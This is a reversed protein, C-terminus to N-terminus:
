GINLEVGVSPVVTGDAARSRIFLIYPGPPLVDTDAPPEAILASGNSATFPIEVTRQDADILHTISTRRVLVVSEVDAADPTTITIKGAPAQQRVADTIVPRDDRFMYPPRYIEFTADRGDNPSMGPVTTHFGYGNNIPAHGGVLVSGDPLLAATNHYTRARHATAMETWTGTAPDFREAVMVPEGYGPAVVEDRNAGSFVMASGDPLLVGTGYWRPNNLRGTETTSFGDVEDSGDLTLTTIQSQDTAVYTGPTVGIIGGATLFSATTYDGSGDPTLPLMLSFTSGRFGPATTTNLPNALDLGPVGLDRWTADQPDFVAAVNWLAEDWAQGAPNFVQGAADYYIEGNPLLHLRPYLPLSRDASAPLGSFELTDHDFVEPQVVNRGSNTPEQDPYAPKILKQVGSMVVTSGDGLSIMSPYWRGYTMDGADIWSKTEPDFVRATRLGALEGVGFGTDAFAPDFYYDTGGVVLLRGDAMFDLDACFLASSNHTSTHANTLPEPFLPEATDSEDDVEARAPDTPSWTRSESAVDDIVRAQDNVFVEGIEFALGFEIDESAELANFYLVDGSGLVAMSGAAPACDLRGDKDDDDVDNDGDRDFTGDPRCHEFASRAPNMGATTEGPQLDYGPEVFPQSFEGVELPDTSTSSGTPALLPLLLLGAAIAVTSAARPSPAPM